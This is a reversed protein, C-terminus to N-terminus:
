HRDLEIKILSIPSPLSLQLLRGKGVSIENLKEFVAM